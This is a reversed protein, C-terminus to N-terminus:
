APQPMGRLANFANRLRAGWGQKASKISPTAIDQQNAGLGERMKNAMVPSILNESQMKNVALALQASFRYQRAADYQFAFASAQFKGYITVLAAPSSLGNSLHISARDMDLLMKGGRAILYNEENSRLLPEHAIPDYVYRPPQIITKPLATAARRRFIKNWFNM